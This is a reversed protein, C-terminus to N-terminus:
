EKTFLERGRDRILLKANAPDDKFLKAFEKATVGSVTISYVEFPKKNQANIIADRIGPILEKPENGKLVEWFAKKDYGSVDVVWELNDASWRVIFTSEDEVVPKPKVSLQDM